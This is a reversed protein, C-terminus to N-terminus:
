STQDTLITKTKQNKGDVIEAIRKDFEAKYRNFIKPSVKLNFRMKFLFDIELLNLEYLPIKVYKSIDSNEVLM